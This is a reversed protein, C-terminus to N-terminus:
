SRTLVWNSPTGYTDEVGSFRGMSHLSNLVDDKPTSNDWNLFRVSTIHPYRSMNGHSVFVCPVVIEKGVAWAAHASWHDGFCLVLPFESRQILALYDHITFDTSVVRSEKNEFYLLEGTETDFHAFTTEETDENYGSFFSYLVDARSFTSGSQELVEPIGIAFFVPSEPLKKLARRYEEKNYNPIVASIPPKSWLRKDELLEFLVHQFIKATTWQEPPVAMEENPIGPFLVRIEYQKLTAEHIQWDEVIEKSPSRCPEGWIQDGLTGVKKFRRLRVALDRAIESDSYFCIDNTTQRAAGFWAFADILDGEHLITIDM